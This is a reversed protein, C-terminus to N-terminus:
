EGSPDGGDVILVEEPAPDVWEIEERNVNLRWEAERLQEKTAELMYAVTPPDFLLKARLHVVTKVKSMWVKLKVPDDENPFYSAWEEAEDEIVFGSPPGIGLDNLYSFATNIHTIIDQDFSTDDEGVGLIKKTSKLISQELAM